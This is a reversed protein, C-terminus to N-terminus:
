PQEPAALDAFAPGSYEAGFGFIVSRGGVAQIMDTDVFFENLAKATWCFAAADHFLNSM